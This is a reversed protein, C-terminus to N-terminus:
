SEYIFKRADELKSTNKIIYKKVIEYAYDDNFFVGGNKEINAAMNMILHFYPNNRERLALEKKSCNYMTETVINLINNFKDVTLKNVNEVFERLEIADQPVFSMIDDLQENLINEILYNEKGSLDTIFHHLRKYWETKVKAMMGNEFTVVWGEVDETTEAAQMLDSLSSYCEIKPTKTVSYQNILEHDYIDLVEGTLEDRAAILRLETQPYMVVIRNFPSVIEFFLAIGHYLSKTVLEKLQPNSNFVTNALKLQQCDPDFNGKTKAILEPEDGKVFDTVDCIFRILSGDAKEQIHKIKLDKLDDFMYGETQNVNFFKHLSLFSQYMEKEKNGIFTLGRLEYGNLSSDKIPQKFDGLSALRYDFTYAIMGNNLEHKKRTFNENNDCILNCEEFSPPNRENWFARM